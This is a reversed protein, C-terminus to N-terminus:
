RWIFIDAPWPYPLRSCVNVGRGWGQRSRSDIQCTESKDTYFPKVAVRENPKAGWEMDVAAFYRRGFLSNVYYIIVM